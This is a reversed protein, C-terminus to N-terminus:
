RFGVVTRRQTILIRVLAATVVSLLMIAIIAPLGLGTHSSVTGSVQASVGNAPGNTTASGKTTSGKPTNGDHQLPAPNSISGPPRQATTGLGTSRAETTADTTAGGSGQPALQAALGRGTPAYSAGGAAPQTGAAPTSSQTQPQGAAGGQTPALVSHVAAVTLQGSTTQYKTVPLLGAVIRMTYKATYSVTIPQTYTLTASSNYSPLALTNQAVGVADVEVNQVAGLLPLTTGAQAVHNVFTVSDGANLQASRPSPGHDTFEVTITKAPAAAAGVPSGSLLMGVGVGLGAAAVLAGALKGPTRHRSAWGRRVM